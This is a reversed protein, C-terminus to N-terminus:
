NLGAFLALSAPAAAVAVLCLNRLHATETAPTPKSLSALTRQESTWECDRSWLLLFSLLRLVTAPMGLCTCRSRPIDCASVSATQFDFQQRHNWPLTYTLLEQLEPENTKIQLQSCQNTVALLLKNEAECDSIHFSRQTESSIKPGNWAKILQAVTSFPSSLICTKWAANLGAANCCSRCRLGSVTIKHKTFCVSPHLVFHQLHPHLSILNLQAM